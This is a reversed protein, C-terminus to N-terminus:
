LNKPRRGPRRPPLKRAKVIRWVQQRSVHAAEAIQDVTMEEREWLGTVTDETIAKARSRDRGKGVTRQALSLARAAYRRREDETLRRGWRRRLRAEQWALFRTPSRSLRAVTSKIRAAAATRSRKDEAWQKRLATSVNPEHGRSSKGRGRQRILARRTAVDTAQWCDSCIFVPEVGRAAARERNRQVQSARRMITGGCPGSCPVEILGGNRERRKLQGIVAPDYFWCGGIQVGGYRPGWSHATTLSVGAITAAEASSVRGTERKVRAALAELVRRRSRPRGNVGDLEFAERLALVEARSYRRQRQRPLTYATAAAVLRQRHRHYATTGSTLRKGALIEIADGVRILDDPRTPLDDDLATGLTM